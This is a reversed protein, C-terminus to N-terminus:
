GAPSGPSLQQRHARRDVDEDVVVAARRAAVEALEVALRHEGAEDLVHHRRDLQNAGDDVAHSRAAEAADDVDGRERHQRRDRAEVEGGARAGAQGGKEGADRALHGVAVDGDVVEQGALHVGLAQAAAM